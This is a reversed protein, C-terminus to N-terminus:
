GTQRTLTDGKPRRVFGRLANRYLESACLMEDFESARDSVVSIVSRTTTSNGSSKVFAADDLVVMSSADDRAKAIIQHGGSADLYSQHEVRNPRCGDTDNSTLRCFM